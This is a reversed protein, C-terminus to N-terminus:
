PVSTVLGLEISKMQSSLYDEYTHSPRVHNDDHAKPPETKFTVIRPSGFSTGAYSSTNVESPESLEELAGLERSVMQHRSIWWHREEREQAHFPLHRFTPNCPDALHLLPDSVNSPDPESSELTKHFAALWKYREELLTNYASPEPTGPARDPFTLLISVPSQQGTQPFKDDVKPLLNLKVLHAYGLEGSIDSVSLLRSIGIQELVSYYSTLEKKKKHLKSSNILRIGDNHRTALLILDSFVFVHVPSEKAKKMPRYTQPTKQPLQSGATTRFLSHSESERRESVQRGEMGVARFNANQRLHEDWHITASRTSRNSSFGTSLSSTVSNRSLNRHIKNFTSPTSYVLSGSHPSHYTISPSLSPSQNATPSKPHCFRDHSYEDYFEHANRYPIQVRRLLGQALLRRDRKALQFRPPLGKIKSQLIKLNQYEEERAKVEELARIMTEVSNILTVTARHDPHDPPTTQCLHKFFLPYKMLRQIPKILFSTLSMKGCEPLSSQMRVFEGFDSDGDSIMREIAATVEGFRILYPQYIEFKPIYELFVDSIHVIVGLAHTQYQRSREAQVALQSHLNVIDELWDLLKAVETPVGLIWSGEPTRLPFAFIEIVKKLDIVLASETECLEWIIEQRQMELSGYLKSLKEYINKPTSSKWTTHLRQIPMTALKELVPKTVKTRRGVKFKATDTTSDSYEKLSDDEFASDKSCFNLIKSIRPFSTSCLHHKRKYAQPSSSNSIEQASYGEVSSGPSISHAEFSREPSHNPHPDEFHTELPKSSLAKSLGMLQKNIQKELTVAAEGKEAQSGFSVGLGGSPQMPAGSSNVVRSDVNRSSDSENQFLSSTSYSSMFSESRPFAGIMPMASKKTCDIDHNINSDPFTQVPLNFPSQLSPSPQSKFEKEFTDLKKSIPPQNQISLSSSTPITMKQESATWFNEDGEDASEFEDDDDSESLNGSPCNAKSQRMSNIPLSHHQETSTLLKAQNLFADRKDTVALRLSEQDVQNTSTRDSPQSSPVHRQSTRLTAHNSNKLELSQPSLLGKQTQAQNFNIPDVEVAPSVSLLPANTIQSLRRASRPPRAPPRLFIEESNTPRDVCSSLLVEKIEASPNCSIIEPKKPPVVTGSRKRGIIPPQRISISSLRDLPSGEHSFSLQRALKNSDSHSKEQPSTHAKTLLSSSEYPKSNDFTPLLTPPNTLSLKPILVESVDVSLASCSVFSACDSLATQPSIDSGVSDIQPWQAKQDSAVPVTLFGTQRRAQRQMMEDKEVTEFAFTSTRSRPRLETDNLLHEQFISYDKLCLSESAQSMVKTQSPYGDFSVQAIDLSPNREPESNLLDSMLPNLSPLSACSTKDLKPSGAPSPFFPDKELLSPSAKDFCDSTSSTSGDSESILSIPKRIQSPTRSKLASKRRTLTSTPERTPGIIPNEAFRARPSHSLALSEKPSDLLLVTELDSSSEVKLFQSAELATSTLSSPGPHPTSALASDTTQELTIWMRGIGSKAYSSLLKSVNYASLATSYLTSHTNPTVKFYSLNNKKFNSLCIRHVLGRSSASPSRTSLLSKSHHIASCAILRHPLLICVRIDTQSAEEFNPSCWSFLKRAIIDKGRDNPFIRAEPKDPCTSLEDWHVGDVINCKCGRWFESVLCHIEFRMSLKQASHTALSEFYLALRAISSCVVSQATDTTATRHWRYKHSPQAPSKPHDDCSSVGLGRAEQTRVGVFSTADSHSMMDHAVTQPGM